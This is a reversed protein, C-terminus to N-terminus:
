MINNKVWWQCRPIEFLSKFITEISNFSGMRSDIFNIELQTPRVNYYNQVILYSIIWNSHIYSDAWVQTIYFGQNGSDVNQGELGQNKVFAIENITEWRTPRPGNADTLKTIPIPSKGWQWFFEIDFCNLYTWRTGAYFFIKLYKLYTIRRFQSRTILFFLFLFEHISAAYSSHLLKVRSDCLREHM